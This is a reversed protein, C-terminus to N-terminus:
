PYLGPSPNFLGHGQELTMEGYMTYNGRAEEKMYGMLLATTVGLVGAVVLARRATASGGYPLVVAAGPAPILQPMARGPLTRLLLHLLTVLAAVGIGVYRVGVLNGSLVQAPMLGVLMGAATVVVAAMGVADTGRGRPVELALALNGLVLLGGFLAEQLIFLWAAQGNVLNDFFGPQSHKLVEVLAFGDVPMAVAFLLGIRVNIRAAWAQFLREPESAARALKLAAFGALFLATWSVSGALRHIVLPLYPPNQVGGIAGAHQPTILYSDLATIGVVFLAQLAFVAFGIAIHLGPRMREFSNRYIVLLVVLPLFLGFLVGVLPLFVNLQTAWARGWLGTLLVVAFVALTAGLSFVLYYSNVLARAYRMARPDGSRVAHWEMVPAIAIAGVSYEAIAIHLMFFFAIPISNGV